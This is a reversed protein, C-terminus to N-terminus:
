ESHAYGFMKEASPNILVIEGSAAALIIGDSSNSFLASLLQNESLERNM